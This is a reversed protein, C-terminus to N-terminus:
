RRLKGGTATNSFILPQKIRVLSPAFQFRGFTFDDGAAESIVLPNPWPIPTFTATTGYQASSFPRYRLELFRRARPNNHKCITIADVEANGESRAPTMLLRMPYNTSSPVSVELHTGSEGIKRVGADPLMMSSLGFDYNRLPLTSFGNNAYNYGYVNVDPRFYPQRPPTDLELEQSVRFDWYGQDNRVTPDTLDSLLKGTFASANIINSPHTTLHFRRSGRAYAYLAGIYSLYTDLETLNPTTGRSTGTPAIQRQYIVADVTGDHTGFYDLDLELVHNSSPYDSTMVGATTVNQPYMYYSPAMRKTLQRLNTIVEGTCLKARETPSIYHPPMWASFDTLNQTSNKNYPDQMSEASAFRPTRYNPEPAEISRDIEAEDVEDISDLMRTPIVGMEPQYHVTGDFYKGTYDIRAADSVSPRYNGLTPEAFTIDKGAGTWLLMNITSAATSPAVLKNLVFMVIAGNACKRLRQQPESGSTESNVLYQLSANDLMTHLYPTNGLYPVEFEIHSSNTIDWVINFNNGIETINFSGLPDFDPIYALVLRGAHFPTAICDIKYRISGAWYKFMSAVYAMPTPTYQGWTVSGAADSLVSLGPMVPWYSLVSGVEATSAWNFSLAIALKSTVYNIDMEDHDEGFVPAVPIDFGQSFSLPVATSPSDFHTYNPQQHQMLRTPGTLDPPSSFGFARAARSAISTAWSVPQAIPALLPFSSLATAVTSVTDLGESLYHKSNAEKEEQRSESYAIRYQADKVLDNRMSVIHSATQTPVGLKVNEFRAQVSLTMANSTSASSLPSLVFIGLTGLGYQGITDWQSIPACFPIRLEVPSPVAPDFLVHPLQTQIIINSPAGRAMRERKGTEFSMILRGSQFQIPSGFLRVVIDFSMFQYRSIKELKIASLNLLDTPLNYVQLAEGAGSASTWNFNTVFTPRAMFSKIDSSMTHDVTLANTDIQTTIPSSQEMESPLSDIFTTLAQQEMHASNPEFITQGADSKSGIIAAAIAAAKTVPAVTAPKTPATANAAKPTPTEPATKM